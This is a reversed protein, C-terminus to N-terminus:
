SRRQELDMHRCEHAAMLRFTKGMPMWGLYPYRMALTKLERETREELFVDTSRWVDELRALLESREGATPRVSAPAEVKIWPYRVLAIPASFVRRAFGIRRAGAGRAIVKRGGGLFQEGVMALHCTVEAPSWGGASLNWKGPPVSDVFARVRAHSDRLERLIKRKLSM